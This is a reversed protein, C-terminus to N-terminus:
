SRPGASRSLRSRWTRRPERSDAGSETARLGQTSSSASAEFSRTASHLGREPLWRGLPTRRIGGRAALQAALLVIVLQLSLPSYAIMNEFFSFFLITCLIAFGEERLPSARLIRATGIAVVLLLVAVLGAGVIGAYGVASGFTTSATVDPKVLFESKDYTPVDLATALRGGVVDPLMEHLVLGDLACQSGCPSEGAGDLASNLNALPSSFYLYPWMWAASLNTAEFEPTADAYILVVDERAPQGTAQEIQYALRANGFLGFLYLFATMIIVGAIVRVVTLRQTRLVMVLGAFVIFSLASRSAMMAVLSLVVALAALARLDRSALVRRLYRLAHYSTFALMMVHLGPIGFGYIDYPQGLLIQVVPIGGNVVFAATFYAVIVLLPLWTTPWTLSRVRGTDSRVACVAFVIAVAALFALLEPNLPSYLDSWRLAYLALAVCIWLCPAAYPSRAAVVARRAAKAAGSRTPRASAITNALKPM